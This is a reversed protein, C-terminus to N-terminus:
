AESRRLLWLGLAFLSTAGVLYVGGERLQLTWFEDDAVYLQVDRLGLKRECTSIQITSVPGNECNSVVNLWHQTAAQTLIANGSIVPEEGQFVIWANQPAVHIPKAGIAGGDGTSLIVTEVVATRLPVLNPRVENQMTWMVVVTVALAAAITWGPRRVVIGIVTAVAFAFIGTVLPMWGDYTFETTTVRPAYQVVGIWWTFTVGLLVGLVTMSAVSVVIKSALWRTRTLSQTWAARTTKHSFEGAVLSAGLQIGLIAPVLLAFLNYIQDYGKSSNIAQFVVGCRRVNNTAYGHRTGYCIVSNWQHLLSHTHLGNAIVLGILTMAVVFFFLYVSRQLRWAM